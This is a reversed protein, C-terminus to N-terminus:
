RRAARLKGKSGRNPGGATPPPPLSPHVASDIPGSSPPATSETRSSARAAATRFLRRHERELADLYDTWEEVSVRTPLSRAIEQAQSIVVTAYERTRVAQELELHGGFPSLADQKEAVRDRYPKAEDSEWWRKAVVRLHLADDLGLARAFGEDSGSSVGHKGERINNLLSRAVGAQDSLRQLPAGSQEWHRIRMAVYASLVEDKRRGKAM